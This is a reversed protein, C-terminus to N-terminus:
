ESQDLAEAAELTDCYLADVISVIDDNSIIDIITFGNEENRFRVREVSGELYDMPM